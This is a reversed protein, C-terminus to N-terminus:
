GVAAVNYTIATVFGYGGLVPPGELNVVLAVSFHEAIVKGHVNTHLTVDADVQRATVGPDTIQGGAVSSAWPEPEIVRQIQVTTHGQRRALDAWDSQSPV